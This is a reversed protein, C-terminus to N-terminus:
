LMLNARTKVSFIIVNALTHVIPYRLTGESVEGLSVCMLVKHQFWGTQKSNLSAVQDPLSM